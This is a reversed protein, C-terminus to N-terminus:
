ALVGLGEVEGVVRSGLLRDARWAHLTVEAVRSAGEPVRALPMDARAVAISCVGDEGDDDRADVDRPTIVVPSFIHVAGGGFSYSLQLRTAPHIPNGGTGHSSTTFSIRLPQRSTPPTFSKPELIFPPAM